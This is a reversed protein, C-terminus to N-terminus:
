DERGKGTLIDSYTKNQYEQKQISKTHILSWEEEFPLQAITKYGTVMGHVQPQGEPDRWQIEPSNRYIRKQPDPFNVWGKENVNWGWQKVHEQTLGQVVNIRPVLFVDVSPNSTLIAKVNQLLNEQPLEDSDIQFIYEGTCKSGLYNKNELFNQQFNFPHFHYNERKFSEMVSMVEPTVRNQDYVIVIEDEEDIRENLYNILNKLEEHEIWTTIGYSIKM